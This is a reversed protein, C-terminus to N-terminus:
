KTEELVKEVMMRAFKETEEFNPSHASDEFWILEKGSPADLMEFYQEALEFPTNYDHRGLFFYIPVELRPAQEFFDTEMIEDWMHWPSYITGWVRKMRDLPTYEVSIKGVKANKGAENFVVGDFESLWVRQIALELMNDYPPPGIMTLERIARKNARAKAERLVFKYSIAENKEMHAVQGIGVYAYFLDPYSQVVRIGLLSGWSKGMLYVKDVGFRQRLMLVLEHTDSMFQGINMSDPPITPHYSKGAGRQDWHVVVFHEELPYGYYHALPIQTSGPGGHLFLLVPNKVDNGRVLIWQNVGGLEVKELSAISDPTDIPPTKACSAVFLVSVFTLALLLPKISRKTHTM